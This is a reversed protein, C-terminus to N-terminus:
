ISSHSDSETIDKYWIVEITWKLLIREEPANGM